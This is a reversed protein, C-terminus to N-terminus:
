DSVYPDSDQRTKKGTSGDDFSSRSTQDKSRQSKVSSSLLADFKAREIPGVGRAEEQAIFEQLRGERNATHLDIAM